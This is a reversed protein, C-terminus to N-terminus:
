KNEKLWEIAKYLMEISDGLHRIGTNCTSCLVGRITGTIHCHDLVLRKSNTGCIGCMADKFYSDYKDETIGYRERINEKRRRVNSSERLRKTQANRRARRCENSCICKNFMNAEFTNGCGRCVRTYTMGIGEM